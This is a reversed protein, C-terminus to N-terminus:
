ESGFRPTTARSLRDRVALWEKTAPAAEIIIQECSLADLERLAAYLARAYARAESPLKLWKATINEPAARRALVALRRGLAQQQSVFALLNEEAVLVAPTCPAYHSALTGPARPADRGSLLPSAGLVETLQEVSIGGPRLLRPEGSSLDLITSELGVECPGGDVILDVADGLEACVAEATTPSIHGFRNASPAALAGGFAKLLKLAVPHGPIRLGVTDQSGTVIDPVQEARKLILTLPGPWFAEALDNVQEPLEKAWDKVQEVAFLHVILPHDAPRGKAAFIRRVAEPNKADAGLGYVTETPFAVLGGRHLIEVAKQIQKDLSSDSM